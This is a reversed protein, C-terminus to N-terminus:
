IELHDDVVGKFKDRLHAPYRPTDPLVYFKNGCGCEYKDAVFITGTITEVYQNNAACEFWGKCDPCVYYIGM